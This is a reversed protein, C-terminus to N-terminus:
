RDSELQAIRKDTRRGLNGVFTTLGRQQTSLQHLAHDVVTFRADIAAFRADVGDFRREVNAQFERMEDRFERHDERMERLLRITLDPLSEDAM